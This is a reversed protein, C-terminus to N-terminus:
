DSIFTDFTLLKKHPQEYNQLIFNNYKEDKVIEIFFNAYYRM